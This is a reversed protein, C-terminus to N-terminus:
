RCARWGWSGHRAEDLHLHDHHAANYDPSLTTSFLRCGGDRVQHLFRGKEGRDNWDAAVSIRRGDELRFGAVDLANARAHESWPGRQRGYMRRCSYSGFHDIAVVRSRLRALAAPQVVHWEWLALGAAVPCSTGLGAPRFAVPAAGGPGLRVADDYGCQSDQRVAPLAEFRIGARALLAWCESGHIAAIKRGTFAGVPQTLDLKTWPLDEPHKRSLAAIWLAGAAALLLFVLLTLARRIRRHRTVVPEYSHHASM